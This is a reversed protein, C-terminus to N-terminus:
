WPWRLSCLYCPQKPQDVVDAIGYFELALWSILFYVVPQNVVHATQWFPPMNISPLEAGFTAAPHHDPAAALWRISWRGLHRHWSLFSSFLSFTIATFPLFLVMWAPHEIHLLAVFVRCARSHYRLLVTAPPPQRWM